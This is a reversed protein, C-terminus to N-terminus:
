RSPTSTSRRSTSGRRRTAKDLNRLIGTEGGSGVTSTAGGFLFRLEGWSIQNATSAGGPSPSRPTATSARAGSTATSTASARTPRAAPRQHLHHPRPHQDPGALRRGRPVHDGDGDGGRGQLGRRRRLGGQLGGGRHDRDRRRRGSRRPLDDDADAGHGRDARGGDGATVACVAGTTLPSLTQCVVEGAKPEIRAPRRAVTATRPTATTASSAPRSWGTAASPRGEARNQCTPSCGDGSKTNGDDCQEGAEVVGNGCVAAAPTENQCTPSCGDGSKTNGDDCQEGAEVVGNGCVPAPAENQCTASCGDGSKTNGDDCQEGTEVVGNGCVPGPPSPANSGGACGALCVFLVSLVVLAARDVYPKRM